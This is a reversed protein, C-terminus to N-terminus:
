IHRLINQQSPCKYEDLSDKQRHLYVNRFQFLPWPGILPQLVMSSNLFSLQGLPVENDAPFLHKCLSM